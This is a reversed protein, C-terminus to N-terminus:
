LSKTDRQKNLKGGIIRYEYSFTGSVASNPRQYSEMKMPFYTITVHIIKQADEHAYVVAICPAIDLAAFRDRLLREDIVEAVCEGVKKLDSPVFRNSQIFITTNTWRADFVDNLSEVVAEVIHSAPPVEEEHKPVSACGLLLCAACSVAFAPTTIRLQSM